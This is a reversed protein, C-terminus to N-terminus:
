GALEAVPEPLIPAEAAQRARRRNRAQSLRWAAVSGVVVVIALHLASRALGQIGFATM